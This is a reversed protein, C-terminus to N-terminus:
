IEEGSESSSESERRRKTSKGAGATSPTQLLVQQATLATIASLDELLMAEADREEAGGDLDFSPAAAPVPHPKGGQETSPETSGEGRPEASGETSGETSGEGRAETSGEGVAVQGVRLEGRACKTAAPLYREFWFHRMGRALEDFYPANFAYWGIQTRDPLHVVFYADPLRQLGCIGMIQDYYYHPIGFRENGSRESYFTRKNVSPCKIELLSSPLPPAAPGTESQLNAGPGAEGAGRNWPRIIGDPSTGCWGEYTQTHPDWLAPCALMLGRHEVHLNGGCLLFTWWEFVECAKPEMMSGYRMAENSVVTGWLMDEVLTDPPAYKNHGVATGFNSATLRGPRFAHPVAPDLTDGFMKGSPLRTQTGRRSLLWAETGQEYFEVARAEEETVRMREALEKATVAPEIARCLPV